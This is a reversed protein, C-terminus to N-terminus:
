AVSAPPQGSRAAVAKEKCLENLGREKVRGNVREEVEM